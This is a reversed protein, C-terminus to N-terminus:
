KNNWSLIGGKLDYITRFGLSEMKKAANSSRKGSQCYIYVPKTKDLQQIKADFDASNVDINLANYLHGGNFEAATRVDVLQIKENLATQLEAASIPHIGPHQATCSLALLPLLLIILLKKM